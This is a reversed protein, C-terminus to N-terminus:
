LVTENETNKRKAKAKIDKLLTNVFVLWVTFAIIMHSIADSIKGIHSFSLPSEPGITWEILYTIDILLSALGIYWVCTVLWNPLVRSHLAVYFGGLFIILHCIFNILMALPDMLEILATIM